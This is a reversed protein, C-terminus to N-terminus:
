FWFQLAYFLYKNGFLVVCAQCFFKGCAISFQKLLKSVFNEKFGFYFILSDFLKKKVFKLIM